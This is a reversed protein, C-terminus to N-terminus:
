ENTADPAFISFIRKALNGLVTKMDLTEEPVTITVSQEINKEQKNHRTSQEIRTIDVPKQFIEGQLDAEGQIRYDTIGNEREATASDTKKSLTIWSDNGDKLFSGQLLTFEYNSGQKRIFVTNADTTFGAFSSIGTGTYVYDDYQASQIKLAHGTGSVVIEQANKAPETAYSSM